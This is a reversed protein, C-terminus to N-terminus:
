FVIQRWLKVPAPKPRLRGQFGFLHLALQCKLLAHNFRMLRSFGFHVAFWCSEVVRFGALKNLCKASTKAVYHCNSCFEVAWWCLLFLAGAGDQDEKKPWGKFCRNWLRIKLLLSLDLYCRFCFFLAKLPHVFPHISILVCNRLGLCDGALWRGTAASFRFPNVTAISALLSEENM